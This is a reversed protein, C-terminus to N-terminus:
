LSPLTGEAALETVMDVIELDALMGTKTARVPLDGLVAMIQDRVFSAPCAHVGHVGKTDQATLATVALTGYVGHAQFTGLDAAIGAAGGSDSGAITLAVPPTAADGTVTRLRVAPRRARAVVDIRS